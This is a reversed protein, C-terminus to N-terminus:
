SSGCGQTPPPPASAAAGALAAGSAAGVQVQTWAPGQCLSPVPPM